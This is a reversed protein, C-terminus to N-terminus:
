DEQPRMEVTFRTYAPLVSVVHNVQGDAVAVWARVLPDQDAAVSLWGTEAVGSQLYNGPPLFSLPAQGQANTVTSQGGSVAANVTLVGNAIASASVALRLRANYVQPYPKVLGPMTYLLRSATGSTNTFAAVNATITKPESRYEWGAVGAGTYTQIWADRDLRCVQMGLFPTLADRETKDAVPLVVRISDAMSELDATLNYEDSNIPVVTGNPRTQPM